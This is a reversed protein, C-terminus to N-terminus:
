PVAPREAANGPVGADARVKALHPMAKLLTTESVVHRLLEFQLLDSHIEWRWRPVDLSMHYGAAGTAGFCPEHDAIMLSMAVDEGAIGEAAFRTVVDWQVHRLAARNLLLFAADGFVIPRVGGNDALTTLTNIDNQYTRQGNLEIKTGQVFGFHGVSAAAELM